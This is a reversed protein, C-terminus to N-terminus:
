QRARWIRPNRKAHIVAVVIIEDRVIRYYMGLPFRKMVYRRLAGGVRACAQPNSGIAEAAADIEALFEGAIRLDKTCYFATAEDVDRQARSTFWPKM